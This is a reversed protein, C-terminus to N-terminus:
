ILDLPYLPLGTLGALRRALTSKGAGSNGFVAVRKMHCLRDDPFGLRLPVLVIPQISSAIFSRRGQIPCTRTVSSSTPSIDTRRAAPVKARSGAVNRLPLSSGGCQNVKM